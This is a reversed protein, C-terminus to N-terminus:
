PHPVIAISRYYARKAEEAEKACKVPDDPIYPEDLKESGCEKLHSECVWAKFKKVTCRVAPEQCNADYQCKM